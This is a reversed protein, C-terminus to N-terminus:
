RVLLQACIPANKNGSPDTAVICFKLKGPKLSKPVRWTVSHPRFYVATRLPTRLVAKLTRGASVRVVDRTRESDDLVAYKLRVTTGRRGNAPQPYVQPPRIDKSRLAGAATLKQVATTAAHTLDDASSGGPELSALVREEAAVSRGGDYVGFGAPMVILLPGVFITSLEQGLFRAYTKPKGFLEPVAGLDSSAAIVAVKVRYGKAFAAAVSRKLAAVAPKSPPPYPVFVDQVYLVDSAPDGDARAGGALTGILAVASVASLLLRARIGFRYGSTV